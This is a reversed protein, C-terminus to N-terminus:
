IINKFEAKTQEKLIPNIGYRNEGRDGETVTLIFSYIPILIFWGSKNVDHMRRISVGISPLMILLQFIMVLISDELYPAIGLLGELIGLLIAIIISFLEFYWYEARRARGEFVAYKKLVSIFYKM